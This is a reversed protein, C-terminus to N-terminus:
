NGNPAVLSNGWAVSNGWVVSDGWVVSNGWTVSNGWVVSDGWVVSNGWVVSDGWVVSNGWISSANSVISVMNNSPNYVAMPSKAAGFTSPALDTSNLAAVADVAGAGTAFIDQEIPYNFGTGQDTATTYRSFGKWASKMLRAKVQDPTLSPTKQLLMASVGSVVATSMSTGSLRMYSAPGYQPGCSTANSNCPYVSIFPYQSTLTTNAQVRRSVIQNGPAVLDPKVIHDLATPGKSSFSTITQSTQAGTGHTNTAGVTIIYPDNGPAGVTAYGNIFGFNYEGMNGAAAVVVIGARWASEVAQCLPDRTYSEYVGRGLSLNLVRINYTNKLAIAQQIAAIINSDFGAGNSDLARLNVLTVGSAVGHYVAPYTAENASIGGNGAIITAVHTGHGYVDNTTNEYTVFNQSYQVRNTNSYATTALDQVAGIGSDIVAVGIGTGDWGYYSAIDANVASVAKDLAGRVPRDPSIYAVNSHAALSSLDSGKVTVLQANVVPLDAKKNLNEDALESDTPPQRFQVIVDVPKNPDASQLDPSLKAAVMAAQAAPDFAQAPAPTSNSNAAPQPAQPRASLTSDTPAFLAAVLASFESHQSQSTGSSPDSSNQAITAGTRAADQSNPSYSGLVNIPRTSQASRSASLAPAGSPVPTTRHSVGFIAAALSFAILAGWTTTKLISDKKSRRGNQDSTQM